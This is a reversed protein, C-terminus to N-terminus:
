CNGMCLSVEASPTLGASVLAHDFKFTSIYYAPIDATALPESIQAVIGCEDFGLPQGGIRVMKWLEGSASTFLVNNPFRQTTQEDMVLSIYGEILSFSFFRIHGSDESSAGPEKIGGSYFMVDMLLTAVSPLTDPDLSTVCFMNSPSSLPHIIPRPVLKPKVFGNSVGLSNAAVTEGNVVRLLTFESSLTHMVMPLDLERVLIFDTQYTSLMFVSINHDALPAIVSKAIKTVGIPQSNTASGGGSVVNLALWTAEAVSLHESEPLEKFGEEDVIITYDEPTETLSFFKCRTKSPLFALKILGHTCIQIGEKAISAVKLTHELIHLEMNQTKENSSCEGFCILHYSNM